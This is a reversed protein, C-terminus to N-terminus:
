DLGVVGVIDGVGVVFVFDQEPGFLPSDLWGEKGILKGVMLVVGVVFYSDLMEFRDIGVGMM